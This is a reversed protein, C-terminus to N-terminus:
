CPLRTKKYTELRAEPEYDSRSVMILHCLRVRVRYAWNSCCFLLSPLSVPLASSTVESWIYVLFPCLLLDTKCVLASTHSLLRTYLSPNSILFELSTLLHAQTLECVKVIKQKFM